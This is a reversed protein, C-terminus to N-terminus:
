NKYKGGLKQANPMGHFNASYWNCIDSIHVGSWDFEM